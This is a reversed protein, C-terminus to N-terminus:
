GYIILLLIKIEDLLAEQQRKSDAYEEQALQGLDPDNLMDQAENHRTLQDQYREFAEAIPRLENAEKMLASYLTPQTTVEPQYLRNNVEEYRNAVAQIRELM